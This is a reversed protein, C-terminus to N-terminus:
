GHEDVYQQLLLRANVGYVLSLFCVVLMSYFPVAALTQALLLKYSFVFVVSVSATLVMLLMAHSFLTKARRLLFGLLVLPLFLAIWLVDGSQHRNDLVFQQYASRKLAALDNTAALEGNVYVKAQGNGVTAAIYTSTSEALRDLYKEDTDATISSLRSDFANPVVTVPNAGSTGSIPTRVYFELNRGNQGLMFNRAENGWSLTAIRAPGFQELPNPKLWLEISLQSADNELLRKNIPVSSSPRLTTGEVFSLGGSQPWGINKPHMVNLNLSTGTSSVHNRVVAGQGESFSYAALLGPADETAYHAEKSSKRAQKYNAKITSESLATNHLRLSYLSGLWPKQLNSENGVSFLLGPHWNSFNAPLKQPVLSLYASLCILVAFASAALKQLVRMGQQLFWANNLLTKLLGGVLVGLAAGLSNAAIDYYSPVRPLFLQAHELGASFAFASFTVVFLRIVSHNIRTSRTSVGLFGLPMFLIINLMADVWTWHAGLYWGNFHASSFNFPSLVSYIILAATLVLLTIRHM